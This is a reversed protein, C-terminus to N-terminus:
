LYLVVTLMLLVEIYITHFVGTAKSISVIMPLTQMKNSYTMTISSCLIFGGIFSHTQGRLLLVSMATKGALGKGAKM